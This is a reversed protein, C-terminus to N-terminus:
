TLTLTVAQGPTRSAMVLLNDHFRKPNMDRILHEVIQSYPQAM